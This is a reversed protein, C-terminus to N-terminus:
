TFVNFKPVAMANIALAVAIVCDDHMGEPANMRVNGSKTVEYEYAKLEDTQILIDMLQIDKRQVTAVAREILGGKSQATFQFPMIDVGAAVLAEYIPAGVGTADVFGTAGYESIAIILRQITLEWSLRQFRDFYVQRGDQDFISIVTFDQSQALDIGCFYRKGAVPPENVARGKDIIMDVGIFVGGADDIFEALFEQRYSRDPLGQSLLYDRDYALKPLYPNASTPAHFSKWESYEDPNNGRNFIECFFNRGKPTGGFVARGSYDTLTPLIADNWLEGLNPVMGAEDVIAKAYKYSRGPDDNDLTWFDIRGGNRLEIVRDSKNKSAIAPAFRNTIEKWPEKMYKYNPVFWGVPLGDRITTEAAEIMEEITKGFRRGCAVVKFRHKDTLIPYQGAHPRPLRIQIM